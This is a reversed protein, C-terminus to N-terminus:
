RAVVESRVVGDPTTLGYGRRMLLVRARVEDVVDPEYPTSDRDLDRLLRTLERSHQAGSAPDVDLRRALEIAALARPAWAESGLLAGLRARTATEIPGPGEARLEHELALRLLASVSVRRARALARAQDGLDPPVKATITTTPPTPTTM